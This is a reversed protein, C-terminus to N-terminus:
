VRKRKRKRDREWGREAVHYPQSFCSVFQPSGVFNFSSFMFLGASSGSWETSSHSLWHLRHLCFLNNQVRMFHLIFVYFLRDDLLSSSLVFILRWVNAFFFVTWAIQSWILVSCHVGHNFPVLCNPNSM